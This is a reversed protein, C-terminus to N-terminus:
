GDSRAPLHEPPAIPEDIRLRLLVEAKNRNIQTFCVDNAGALDAGELDRLRGELDVAPVLEERQRRVLRDETVNRMRRLRRYPAPDHGRVAADPLGPRQGDHCQGFARPVAEFDPM